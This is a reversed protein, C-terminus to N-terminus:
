GDGVESGRIDDAKEEVLEQVRGDADGIGEESKGVTGIPEVDNSNAATCWVTEGVFTSNLWNRLIYTEFLSSIAPVARRSATDTSDPVAHEAKVDLAGAVRWDASRRKWGAGTLEVEDGLSKV